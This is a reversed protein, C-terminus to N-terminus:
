EMITQFLAHVEATHTHKIHLEKLKQVQLLNNHFLDDLLKKFEVEGLNECTKVRETLRLLELKAMKVLAKDESDLEPADSSELPVDKYDSTLDLPPCKELKGEALEGTPSM